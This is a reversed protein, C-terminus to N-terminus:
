ELTKNFRLSAIILGVFVFVGLWIADYELILISADRLVIARIIRMFHTAPLAEAIWQAVIPMAEYPFMFGSLLISPLLIFITMQMAQLQTKAITSIMLGLTLSAAIFLISGVLLSLIGGHIPVSFVWFGVSLIIVVQILGVFVYPTIKGVMLEIPRVPTTILFEMNGQEQERVIASSTFLIMTMTLIVAVLGPVINVVTRQEPNFYQVVAFSPAKQIIPRNSIEDLPMNRLGRIASSIVTDSGDVIWQGIPRTMSSNIQQHNYLSHEFLRRTLDSPLYLVAKIKGQIIAQEAEEISNYRAVFNVSQTATIAQEIARSQSTQSFDVLAVPIHRADTNIAYGFLMLQVLPIMLIMAFTMRDRSLQKLEKIFIAYIRTWM